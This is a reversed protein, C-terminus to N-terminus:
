ACLTWRRGIVVATRDAVLRLTGQKLEGAGSTVVILLDTVLVWRRGQNVDVGERGLALPHASDHSQMPIGHPLNATRITVEPLITITM